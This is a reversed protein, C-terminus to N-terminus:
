KARATEAHFLRELAALREDRQERHARFYDASGAMVYFSHPEPTYVAFLGTLHAGFRRALRLAFELRSHARASTDLHVVMSKYSM